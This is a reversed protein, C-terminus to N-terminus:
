DEALCYGFQANVKRVQDEGADCAEKAYNYLSELRTECVSYSHFSASKTKIIEENASIQRDIDNALDDDEEECLRDELEEKELRLKKIDRSLEAKKASAFEKISVLERIKESLGRQLSSQRLTKEDDSNLANFNGSILVDFYYALDETASNVRSALGGDLAERLHKVSEQIKGIVIDINDDCTFTTYELNTVYQRIKEGVKNIHDTDLNEAYKGKDIRFLLRNIEQLLDDKKKNNTKVQSSKKWLLWM